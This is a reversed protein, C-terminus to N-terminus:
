PAWQAEKSYQNFFDVSEMAEKIGKLTQRAAVLTVTTHLPTFRSDDANKVRRDITYVPHTEGMSARIRYEYVAM